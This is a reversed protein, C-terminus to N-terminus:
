VTEELTGLVHLGADDILVVFGTVSVRLNVANATIAFNPGAPLGAAELRHSVALNLPVRVASTAFGVTAGHVGEALAALLGGLEVSEDLKLQPLALLSVAPQLVLVKGDVAPAVHLVARLDMGQRGLHVARALNLEVRIEQKGFEVRPAQSRFAGLQAGLLELIQGKPLHVLFNPATLAALGTRTTTIARLQGSAPSDLHVKALLAEVEQGLDATRGSASIAPTFRLGALKFNAIPVADPGLTGSGALEGLTFAGSAVIPVGLDAVVSGRSALGELQVDIERDRVTATVTRGALDRLHGSYAGLTFDQPVAPLALRGRFRGRVLRLEGTDFSFEFAAGARPDSNTLRTSVQGIPPPLTFKANQWSLGAADFHLKGTGSKDTTVVKGSNGVWLRKQQIELKGGALADISEVHDPHLIFHFDDTKEFVLEPGHEADVRPTRWGKVTLASLTGALLPKTGTADFYVFKGRTAALTFQREIIGNKDRGAGFVVNDTAPQLNFLHLRGMTLESWSDEDNALPQAEHRASLGALLGLTLLL